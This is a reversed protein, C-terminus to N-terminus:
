TQKNQTLFIMTGWYVVSMVLASIMGSMVSKSKYSNM